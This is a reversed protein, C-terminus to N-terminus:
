QSQPALELTQSGLVAHADLLACSLIALIRAKKRESEEGPPLRALHIALDRYAGCVDAVERRIDGIM